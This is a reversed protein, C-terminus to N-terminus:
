FRFQLEMGWERPRAPWVIATGASALIDERFNAYQQDTANLVYGAIQWERSLPGFELRANWLGYGRQWSLPPNDFLFNYRSTYSYDVRGRVRNRSGLPLTYEVATAVTWQPAVPARAAAPVAAGEDLKTYRSNLNGVNAIFLLRETPAATLELEGGWLEAKGANGTVVIPTGSASASVLTLQINRYRSMFAAANLRVRRDLWESKLGAEYTTLTEPRYSLFEETGLPRGNFGGSRFGQSVSTYLLIDRTARFDIGLRPTDSYWHDRLTTPPFLPQPTTGSDVYHDFAHSKTEYTFRTGGGINLRDTVQHSFHAFVAYSNNRLENNQAILTGALLLPIDQEVREGFYYLGVLWSLRDELATGTLQLEQSRQSQRTLVLQDLDPFPSGDFDIGTDSRLTRYASISKLTLNAHSYIVSVSAGRADLDDHSNQGAWTVRPDTVVYEPRGGHQPDAAILLHPDATGRSRTADLSTLVALRKSPDWSVATRAAYTHEDGFRRGNVLRRQWGEQSRALVAINAGLVGEVLPGSVKLRGEYKNRDGGTLVVTTEPQRAPTASVVNIAGGISNRGFLTGQPGRLVEVREVDLLDLAAGTTRGLYVGDLYTGVGPDTSAIFDLQGVGRIFYHGSSGGQPGSSSRLNPTYAAIDQLKEVSRREIDAATFATVSIPTAQLSEARRRATVVIEELAGTQVPATSPSTAELSAGSADPEIAPSGQAPLMLLVAFHCVAVSGRTEGPRSRLELRELGARRMAQLGWALPTSLTGAAFAVKWECV